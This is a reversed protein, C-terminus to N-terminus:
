QYILQQGLGQSPKLKEQKLCRVRGLKGEAEKGRHRQQLISIVSSKRNEKSMAKFVLGGEWSDAYYISSMSPRSPTVCKVLVEM